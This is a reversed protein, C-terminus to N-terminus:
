KQSNRLITHDYTKMNQNEECREQVTQIPDRQFSSCEGRERQAMGGLLPKRNEKWDLNLMGVLIRKRFDGEVCGLLLGAFNTDCIESIVYQSRTGLSKYLEVRAKSCILPRFTSRSPLPPHATSHPSFLWWVHQPAPKWRPSEDAPQRSCVYQLNM